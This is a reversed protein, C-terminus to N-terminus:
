GKVLDIVGNRLVPVMAFVAIALAAFMVILGAITRGAGSDIYGVDRYTYTVNVNSDNWASAPSVAKITARLTGDSVLVDNSITYNTAPIVQGPKTANEMVLTEIYRGHLTVTTINSFAITQNTTVKTATMEGIPATIGGTLIVLATIIGIATLIIAGVGMQAKKDM